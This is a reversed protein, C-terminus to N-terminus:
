FQEGTGDWSWQHLCPTHRQRRKKKKKSFDVILEKTKNVSLLLNNDAGGQLVTSKRGIGVLVLNKDLNAKFILNFSQSEM